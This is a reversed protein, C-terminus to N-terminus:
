AMLAGDFVTNEAGLTILTVIGPPRSGRGLVSTNERESPEQSKPDHLGGINQKKHHKTDTVDRRKIHINYNAPTLVRTHM